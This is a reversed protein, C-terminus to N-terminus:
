RYDCVRHYRGTQDASYRSDVYMPVGLWRAILGCAKLKLKGGVRHYGGRERDNRKTWALMKPTKLYDESAQKKKILVEMQRDFLEDDSVDSFRSDRRPEAPILNTM